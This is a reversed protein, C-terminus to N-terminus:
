RMEYCECDGNKDCTKRKGTRLFYDCTTSRTSRISGRYKCGKCNGRELQTKDSTISCHKKTARHGRRTMSENNAFM